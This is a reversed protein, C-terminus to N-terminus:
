TCSGFQSQCGVGCYYSSSGCWGAPSCCDGYVSGVCTNGSSEGCSGNGSIALDKGTGGSGSSPTTPTHSAMSATTTSSATATPTQSAASATPSSSTPPSSSHPPVAEDLPSFVIDTTEKTGSFEYVAPGGLIYPFDKEADPHSNFNVAPDSPQIYGPISVIDDAPVNLASSSGEVSVQTCGIYFQAPGAALNHLAIIETRILYKGSPMVAPIELSVIGDNAILKETAWTQSAEDYGYDWLKFWGTGTPDDSTSEVSKAYIAMPGLHSGDITGPPSGSAWLRFEWSLKQNPKLTCTDAAPTQGAIGCAMEPSTLDTVPSTIDDIDFSTRLCKGDGQSVGGIFVTSFVGHSQATAIFTAFCGLTSSLKM